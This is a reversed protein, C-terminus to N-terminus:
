SQIESWDFEIQCTERVYLVLLSSDIAVLLGNSNLCFFLLFFSIFWKIKLGNHVLILIYIM